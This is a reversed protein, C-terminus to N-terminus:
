AHAPSSASPSAVHGAAALQRTLASIRALHHDDHEAVFLFLDAPRMPTGMRPHLASRNLVDGPLEQLRQVTRLRQQRFSRLLAALPADNHGARTTAENNLDTPRLEAKGEVIDELRGLWLPELDVLHGVNEQITWTGDVRTTHWEPAITALKEELRAATGLLRELLSPLLRPDTPQTFEREFWKLQEM